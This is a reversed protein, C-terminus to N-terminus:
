APVPRGSTSIAIVVLSSPLIILRAHMSKLLRGSPYKSSGNPFDEYIHKHVIIGAEVDSGPEWKIVDTAFAGLVGSHQKEKPNDSSFLAM